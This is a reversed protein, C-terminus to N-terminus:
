VPFSFIKNVMEDPMDMTEAAKQLELVISGVLLAKKPYNFGIYVAFEYLAKAVEMKSPKGGDESDIMGGLINLATYAQDDNGQRAKLMENLPVLLSSLDAGRNYAIRLAEEIRTFVTGGTNMPFDSGNLLIKYYELDSPSRVLASAIKDYERMELMRGIIAMKAVRYMSPTEPKIGNRMANKRFDQLLMDAAVQSTHMLGPKKVGRM